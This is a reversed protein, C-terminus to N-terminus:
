GIDTYVWIPLIDDFTANDDKSNRNVREFIRLFFLSNLCILAFVTQGLQHCIMLLNFWLIASTQLRSGITFNSHLRCLQHFCVACTLFRAGDLPFSRFWKALLRDLASVIRGKRKCIKQNNSASTIDFLFAM